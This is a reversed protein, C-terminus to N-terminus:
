RVSYVRVEARQADRHPVALYFRSQDAVFLGTRAGPATAVHALRTFSSPTHEEFVDLFGEGGSVYLRRRAADYFLDDTDGVIDFGTVVRGDVSDLVLVKAPQRCGIFLRHNEADLAMPFCARAASVPFTTLPKVAVRDIVAVVNATPVNVFLRSDTPELQFSEPHGPVMAQGLLKGDVPDIAGIAGAGYGVFFRHAGADYRVNDANGGPQLVPGRKYDDTSILQVQGNRRNAVTVIREDPAVALGQPEAFGSLTTVHTADTTNLVEVTNNGLAAVFLRQTRRDFALHDIRGEVRPLEISTLLLLPDDAARPRMGVVAILAALCIGLRM